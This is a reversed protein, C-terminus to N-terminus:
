RSTSCRATRAGIVSDLGGLVGPVFRDVSHMLGPWDAADVIRDITLRAAGAVHLRVASRPTTRPWSRWRRRTGCRWRCRIARSCSATVSRSARVRAEAARSETVDRGVFYLSREEADYALVLELLRSRDDACRALIEVTSPARGRLTAQAARMARERHDADVLDLYHRGILAEPAYGLVADWAPNARVIRGDRGVVAMLDRALHFFRDASTTM